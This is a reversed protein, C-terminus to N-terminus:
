LGAERDATGACAPEISKEADPVRLEGSILKPLLTDRLSSLTRNEDANARIKSFLSETLESFAFNVQESPRLFPGSTTKLEKERAVAEERSQFEEYHPIYRPKNKKTWDAGKGTIHEQWRRPLNDTHGIYYSDGECAIVYVFFVGPRPAPLDDEIEAAGVYRGPTLVYGHERIKEISVSKCFGPVDEYVGADKEGGAQAAGCASLRWAHYTSAIKQIDNDSLERHVRDILEGM